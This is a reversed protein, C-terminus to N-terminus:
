NSIFSDHNSSLKGAQSAAAATTSTEGANGTGGTGAAGAPPSVGAAAAGNVTVTVM